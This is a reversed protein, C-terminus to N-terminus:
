YRPLYHKWQPKFEVLIPPIAALFAGGICFWEVNTALKGGNVLRAM